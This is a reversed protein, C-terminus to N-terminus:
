VGGPIHAALQTAARRPIIVDDEGGMQVCCPSVLRGLGPPARGHLCLIPRGRLAALCSRWSMMHVLPLAPLAPQPLSQRPFQQQLQGALRTRLLAQPLALHGVELAGRGRPDRRKVMFCPSAVTHDIAYAMLSPM